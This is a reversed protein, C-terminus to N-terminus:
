VFCHEVAVAFNNSERIFKNQAQKTARKHTLYFLHYTYSFLTEIPAMSSTGVFEPYFHSSFM